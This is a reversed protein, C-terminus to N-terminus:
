VAARTRLRPLQGQKRMRLLESLLREGSLQKDTKETFKAVLEHLTKPSQSLRDVSTELKRYIDALIGREIDTLPEFSALITQIVEELRGLPYVPYRSLADPLKTSSPGNILVFVAKNWAAAAGIEVMGMSSPPTDPSVIAIVARSEALAQWISDALDMGPEVTGAHFTELGASQLSEAIEKALHADAAAHSIFVDCTKSLTANM